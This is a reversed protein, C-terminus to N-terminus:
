LTVVVKGFHAGRELHSLADRIADLPFVRDVIPKVRHLEFARHMSAAGDRNGVFVGQVRVHQMLIPLVRVPEVNGALNGVLSVTGGTRVARLSQQLTGAGGVEVVHDVGERFLGRIHKGWEPVAKYSLVHHAGLAQARALKEESSSLVVTEAGSLLAVQLAFLSVGGTGLILVRAGPELAGETVLATWATLAACPLTSAEVDTMHPPTPVVGTADLVVHTALTGPLPSGLTRSLREKTVKGSVFGQAFLSVVRDGIKVSTVDDGVAVVDGAADSGPVHPLPLRPNYQGRVLLLDRFNLSVANVRVLVQGPGPKPTDVDVVNLHELGFAEIRAARTRAPVSPTANTTM